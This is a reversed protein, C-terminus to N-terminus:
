ESRCLVHLYLLHHVEFPSPKASAFSGQGHMAATYKQLPVLAQGEEEGYITMHDRDLDTALRLPLPAMSAGTAKGAAVQM